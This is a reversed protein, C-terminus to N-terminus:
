ADLKSIIDEEWFNYTEQLYQIHNDKDSNIIEHLDNYLTEINPYQSYVDGWTLEPNEMIAAVTSMMFKQFSCITIYAFLYKHKDSSDFIKYDEILINGNVIIEDFIQDRLTKDNFYNREITNFYFFIDMREKQLYVSVTDLNDLIFSKALFLEFATLNFEYLYNNIFEAEIHMADLEFWYQEKINDKSFIYLDNNTKFDYLHQMEHILISLHISSGTKYSDLFKLGFSFSIQDTDINRDFSMGGLITDKSNDIVFRLENSNICSLATIYVKEVNENKDGNSIVDSLDNLILQIVQKYKEIDISDSFLSVTICLLLFLITIKKM